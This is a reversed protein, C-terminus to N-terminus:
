LIKGLTNQLYAFYYITLGSRCWICMQFGNTWKNNTCKKYGAQLDILSKVINACLPIMCNALIKNQINMFLSIKYNPTKLPNMNKMVHNLKTSSFILVNQTQNGASIQYTLLVLVLSTHQPCFILSKKKKKLQCNIQLKNKFHYSRYLHVTALNKKLDRRCDTIFHVPAAMPVTMQILQEPASNSFLSSRLGVPPTKQECSLINEQNYYFDLELFLNGSYTLWKLYLHWALCDNKIHEKMSLGAAM